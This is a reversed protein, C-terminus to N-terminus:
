LAAISFGVTVARAGSLIDRRMYFQRPRCGHVTHGLVYIQNYEDGWSRM